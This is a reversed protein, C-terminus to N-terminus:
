VNSDYADEEMGLAEPPFSCHAEVPFKFAYLTPASYQSGSSTWIGPGPSTGKHPFPSQVHTLTQPHPSSGRDDPPCANSDCTETNCLPLLDSDPTPSAMISVSAPPIHESSPPLLWLGLGLFTPSQSFSFFSLVCIRGWFDRSPILGVSM